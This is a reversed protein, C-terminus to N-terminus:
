NKTTVVKEFAYKNTKRDKEYYELATDTLKTVVYIKPIEAGGNDMLHIETLEGSKELWYKFWGNGPYSDRARQDLLDQEYVAQDEDGYYENWERGLLYPNEDSNEDTFRVYHETPDNKELWLGLLDSLQYEPTNRNFMNCSSLTAAALAILLFKFNKKAMFARNVGNKM